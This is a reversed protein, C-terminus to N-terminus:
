KLCGESFSLCGNGAGGCFKSRCGGALSRCRRRCPLRITGVLPDDSVLWRPLGGACCHDGAYLIGNGYASDVRARLRRPSESHRTGEDAKASLVVVPWVFGPLIYVGVVCSAYQVRSWAAGGCSLLRGM